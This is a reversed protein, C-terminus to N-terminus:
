IVVKRREIIKEYIYRGMANHAKKDRSGCRTWFIGGGIPLDDEHVVDFKGDKDIVVFHSNDFEALWGSIGAVVVSETIEIEEHQLSSRVCSMWGAVDLLASDLDAFIVLDDTTDDEGVECYTPHSESWSAWVEYVKNGRQFAGFLLKDLNGTM